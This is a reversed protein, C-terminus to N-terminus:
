VGFYKKNCRKVAIVFWVMSAVVLLFVAVDLKYLGGSYLRYFDVLSYLVTLLGLSLLPLSMGRIYGDLDKCKDADIGKPLMLTQKIVRKFKLMYFGYLCYVGCLLIFVSFLGEMGGM